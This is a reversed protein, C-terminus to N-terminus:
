FRSRPKGLLGRYDRYLNTSGRSNSPRVFERYGWTIATSSYSNVFRLKADFREAPVGRWYPQTRPDNVHTKRGFRAVYDAPSNVALEGTEVNAWLEKGSAVCAKKMATFFPACQQDTYYSLHEGRDQLAVIDVASSCLVEIWFEEFEQPTAWRFDGLVHQDDLIFFPSILVPKNPAVVKCAAAAERYLTRTLERQAGWMVYTEYPVYFGRFSPHHGYRQHLLQIRERARSLEAAADPQVWWNPLAGTDVFFELHRLDGEAFLKEAPDEAGAVVRQGIMPGNLVVLRMGLGEIADLETANLDISGSQSGPSVFWLCGILRARKLIPSHTCNTVGALVSAMAVTAIWGSCSRKARTVGNLLRHSMSEIQKPSAVKPSKSREAVERTMM